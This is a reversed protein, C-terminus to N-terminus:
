KRTRVLRFGLNPNTSYLSANPVSRNNINCGDASGNFFGGRAIRYIIANNGNGTPVPANWCWERVNGSMDYLGVSNPLKSKVNATYSSSSGEIEIVSNDGYVAYNTLESDENTGAYKYNWPANEDTSPSGGRAAFEWEEETPLRYGNAKTDVYANESKGSGRLVEKGEAARIPTRDAESIYYVPTLGDMESAANCWVVLDRWSVSTVPETNGENPEAADKGFNGARGPNAFSYVAEGREESIAWQYVEYWRAYTTETEAIYFSTVEIPNEESANYFPGLINGVSANVTGGEFYVFGEIGGGNDTNVGQPCAVLALMAFLVTVSFAVSMWLKTKKM